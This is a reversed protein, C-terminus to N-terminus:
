MLMDAAAFGFWPVTAGLMGVIRSLRARRSRQELAAAGAILICIWGLWILAFATHGSWTAGIGALAISGAAFLAAFLCHM